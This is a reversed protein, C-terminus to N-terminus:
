TNIKNEVEYDERIWTRFEGLVMGPYCWPGQPTSEAQPFYHPYNHEFTKRDEFKTTLSNDTWHKSWHIGVSGDPVFSSDIHLGSQGSHGIMESLKSSQLIGSPVSNYVRSVRHHFQRWVAMIIRITVGDSSHQRHHLEQNARGHDLHRRSPM